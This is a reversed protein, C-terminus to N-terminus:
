LALEHKQLLIGASNLHKTKLSLQLKSLPWVAWSWYSSSFWLALLFEVKSLETFEENPDASTKYLIQYQMLKSFTALFLPQMDSRPHSMNFGIKMPHLDDILLSHLQATDCDRCAVFTNINVFTITPLCIVM